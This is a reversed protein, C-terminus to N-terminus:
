ATFRNASEQQHGFKRRIDGIDLWDGLGTFFGARHEPM